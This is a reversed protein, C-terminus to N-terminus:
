NEGKIVIPLGVVVEVIKDAKKALERNIEALAKLYEMTGDDYIIGDEFVNNTVIILHKVEKQLESMGTLIKKVVQGAPLIKERFMENAALNSMCELLAANAGTEMQPVAREIDRPQEITLFGKGQRLKKHREVKRKGDEDYIQMTALYYKNKVDSNECMLTEAYASKGSGSGGIVLTVM